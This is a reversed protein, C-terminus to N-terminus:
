KDEEYWECPIAYIKTEMQPYARAIARYVVGEVSPDNSVRFIDGERLQIIMVEKWENNDKREFKRLENMLKGGPGPRVEKGTLMRHLLSSHDIDNCMYEREPIYRQQAVNYPQVARNWVRITSIVQQYQEETLNPVEFEKDFNTLPWLGYMPLDTM